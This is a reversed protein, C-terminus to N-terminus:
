GREVHFHKGASCRRPHWRGARAALLRAGDLAAAHTDFMIKGTAQCHLLKGARGTRAVTALAATMLERGNM